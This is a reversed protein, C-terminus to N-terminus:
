AITEFFETLSRQCYLLYIDNNGSRDSTFVLRQSDPLWTPHGDSGPDFTLRRQHQGGKDMVYIEPNGDRTSVFAIQHGDPSWASQTDYADKQWFDCKTTCKNKHFLPDQRFIGNPQDFLM